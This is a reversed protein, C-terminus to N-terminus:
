ARAAVPRWRLVGVVLRATMAASMGLGIANAMVAQAPVIAAWAGCAFRVIFIGLYLALPLWSGPLRVRGDPLLQGAPEALVFTTLVGIIAGALWSGVAVVAGAHRAFAYVGFLSWAVFIAPAALAGARPMDRTRLRRLGLVILVVLLAYVWLPAGTAIDTAHM